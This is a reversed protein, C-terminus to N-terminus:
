GSPVAAAALPGHLTCAALPLFTQVLVAFTPPAHFSPLLLCPLCPPFCLQNHQAPVSM